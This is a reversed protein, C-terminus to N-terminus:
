VALRGAAGGIAAPLGLVIVQTYILMPDTDTRISGFLWLAAAGVVLSLVYATVTETAPHQFLGATSRRQQHGSFDAVFVIGYTVLLSFVIIIPLYLVPLEDALVLVEETPAISFSFFLAGAATAGLDLLTARVGPSPGNGAPAEDDDAEADARSEGRALIHNAIAIGLSIPIANVMIRGLIVGVPDDLGIRALLVLILAASVLALATAELADSLLHFVGEHGRRFGAWMVCALNLLYAIVLLPLVGLSPRTAGIAWTEMTYMLPTGILLGGTMGRVLDEAEQHWGGGRPSSQAVNGGRVQWTVVVHDFCALAQDWGGDPMEGSRRM